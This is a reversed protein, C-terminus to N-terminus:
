VELREAFCELLVILTAHPAFCHLPPKCWEASLSWGTKAYHFTVAGRGTPLKCSM